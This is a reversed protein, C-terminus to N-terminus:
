VCRSTYLLCSINLGSKFHISLKGNSNEVLVDELIDSPATIVVREEDAKVVEASIGQAVKIEDFSMKYEKNKVIGKGVKPNINFPFGSDSKINCSTLLLFASLVSISFTKM